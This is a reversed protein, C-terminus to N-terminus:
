EVRLDKSLRIAAQAERDRAPSEFFVRDNGASIYPAEEESVGGPHFLIELDCKKEEARRVAEPFLASVPEYFMHGSLMVGMFYQHQLAGALAPYKRINRGALYNLILVKIRNVFPIQVAAGGTRYLSTDEFPVRIRRVSLGEEKIIDAMADFVIPLMHYHVHGDLNLEEGHGSQRCCERCRQIQASLETRVQKKMERYSSSRKPLYSVLLLKGFSIDFFGKENVLLPVEEKPSLPAGEVLNLHVTVRVDKPLKEMLEPLYPSNPMISVGNVAGERICALIRETQNPFLGYDDAHIEIEPTKGM